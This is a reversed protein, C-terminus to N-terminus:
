WNYNALAYNGYVDQAEVELFTSEHCNMFNSNFQQYYDGNGYYTPYLTIYSVEHDSLYVRVDSIEYYAYIDVWVEWISLNSFSQTSCFVEVDEIWISDGYYYPSDYYGDDGPVVLFCGSLGLLLFVWLTKMM